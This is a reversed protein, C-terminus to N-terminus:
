IIVSLQPLPQQNTPRSSHTDSRELAKSNQRQAPSRVPQLRDLAVGPKSQYAAHHFSYPTDYLSLFSFVLAFSSAKAGRVWHPLLFIVLSLSLSFLLYLHVFISLNLTIPYCLRTHFIPLEVFIPFMSLLKGQQHLCIILILVPNVLRHRNIWYTHQICLLFIGPNYPQLNTAPERRLLTTTGTRVLAERTHNVPPIHTLTTGWVWFGQALTLYKETM